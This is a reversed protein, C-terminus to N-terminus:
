KSGPWKQSPIIRSNPQQACCNSYPSSLRRLPSTSFYNSNRAISLHCTHTPLAMIQTRNKFRGAETEIHLNPLWGEEMWCGTLLTKSPCLTPPEFTFTINGNGKFSDYDLLLFLCISWHLLISHRSSLVRRYQEGGSINQRRSFTMYVLSVKLIWGLQYRYWWNIGKWQQTTNWWM